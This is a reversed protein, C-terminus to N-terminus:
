DRRVCSYVVLINLAKVVLINLAKILMWSYLCVNQQYNITSIIGIKHYNNLIRSCVTYVIVISRVLIHIHM